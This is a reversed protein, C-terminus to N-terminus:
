ILVLLSIAPVLFWRVKRRYDKVTDMTTPVLPWRRHLYLASGVTMVFCGFMISPGTRTHWLTTWFAVSLFASSAVALALFLSFRWVSHSPILLRRCRACTVPRTWWVVFRQMATISTRGCSPCATHM